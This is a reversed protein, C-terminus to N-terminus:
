PKPDAQEWPPIGGFADALFDIFVRLKAPMPSVPPWVVAVPLTNTQVQPLVEVLRGSRIDPQCIFGPLIGVGLGARLFDRIAEGNNLSIRGSVPASVTKQGDRLQWLRANAVHSYGISSHSQLDQINQPTGHKALYDPSACIIHRDECLKRAMLATDRMQGIRVAIDYGDPILDRIRDDYDVTLELDPHLTAFQALLPGLYMRGFSMPAAISLRGRLSVADKSQCITSEAAARLETLAPRLREALSLAVDTPTIRGANRRFLATGLNAELDTIRKSVVSKSLNMRNAAATVTGLEIVTLFSDIEDLTYRM